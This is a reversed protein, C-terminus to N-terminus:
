RAASFFLGCGCADRGSVFFGTGTTRTETGAEEVLIRARGIDDVVVTLAAMYSPAPATEGPLM